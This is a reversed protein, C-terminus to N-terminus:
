YRCRGILGTNKPVCNPASDPRGAENLRTKLEIPPWYDSASDPGRLMWHPRRRLNHEGSTTALVIGQSFHLNTSRVQPEIEVAVLRRGVLMRLTRDREVRSADSGVLSRGSVSLTWEPWSEMSTIAWEGKWQAPRPQGKRNVYPEGRTLQGFELFLCWAYSSWIHSVKQGVIPGRWFRFM